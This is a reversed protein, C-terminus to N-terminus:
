QHAALETPVPVGHAAPVHLAEIACVDEAAHAAQAAPRYPAVVAIVDEDHM